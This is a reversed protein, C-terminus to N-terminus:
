LWSTDVQRLSEHTGIDTWYEHIPFVVVRGAASVKSVVEPMDIAENEHVMSLVQPSLVYMGANVMYTVAPKEEMHLFTAGDAAVVGFPVETEYMRTCVTALAGQEVHFSMLQQFDVRTLVDGNIVLLPHEIPDRILGIAGATGLPQEEYIYRIAIGWKSGDGIYDIVKSALYSVSIYCTSIGASVCADILIELLVKNGIPLLPKPLSETIPRLRRGEGGAMILVASELKRAKTSTKRSVLGVLNHRPDVVPVHGIVDRDMIQLIHAASTDPLAFAYVQNVVDTVAADLTVGRLLGRRVDGDTLTGLLRGSEDVVLAFQIRADQIRQIALRVSDTPLVCSNALEALSRRELFAPYNRDSHM